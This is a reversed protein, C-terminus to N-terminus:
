EAALDVDQSRLGLRALAQATFPASYPLLGTNQFSSGDRQEGSIDVPGM